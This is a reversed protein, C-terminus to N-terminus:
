LKGMIHLILREMEFAANPNNRRTLPTGLINFVANVRCNEENIPTIYFLCEMNKTIKLLPIGENLNYKICKEKFEYKPCGLGAMYATIIQVAEQTNMDLNFTFCPTSKQGSTMFQEQILNERLYKLTDIQEPTLETYSVPNYKVPTGKFTFVSSNNVAEITKQTTDKKPVIYGRPMKKLTDKIPKQKELSDAVKKSKQTNKQDMQTNVNKNSKTETLITDKKSHADIQQALKELYKIQKQISDSVKKLAEEKEQLSKQKAQLAFDVDELEAERKLLEKEKLSIQESRMKLKLADEFSTVPMQNINNSFTLKMQIDKLINEIATLRQEINSQNQPVEDTTPNFVANQKLLHGEFIYILSQKAKTAMDAFNQPSINIKNYWLVMNIANANGDPEIIYQITLKKDVDVPPYIINEALITNQHVFPRIKYQQYHTLLKAIIEDKSLDCLVQYVTYTTNGIKVSSVIPSQGHVECFLLLGLYMWLLSAKM